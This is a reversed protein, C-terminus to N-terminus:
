ATKKSQLYQTLAAVSQFNDIVVDEDPVKFSFQEEIFLVLRLIGLSDVVGSGLLDDDPKIPTSRGIALEKQIFDTLVTATDM